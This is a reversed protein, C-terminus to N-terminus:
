YEDLYKQWSSSNNGKAYKHILLPVHISKNDLCTKLSLRWDEWHEAIKPIGFAFLFYKEGIIRTSDNTLYVYFHLKSQIFQRKFEVLYKGTFPHNSANIIISDPSEHIIEWSGVTEIQRVHSANNGVCFLKPLVVSDKQFIMPELVPGLSYNSFRKWSSYEYDINIEGELRAYISSKRDSCSSFLLIFNVCVICIM